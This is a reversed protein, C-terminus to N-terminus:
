KKIKKCWTTKQLPCIHGSIGGFGRGDIMKKADLPQNSYLPLFILIHDLIAGLGRMRTVSM